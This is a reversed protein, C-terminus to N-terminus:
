KAAGADHRQRSPRLRLPLSTHANMLVSPARPAPAAPALDPWRSFLAQLAAKGELRALPAGICTHPGHGFSGSEHGQADFQALVM